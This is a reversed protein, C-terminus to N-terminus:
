FHISTVAVVPTAGPPDSVYADGWGDTDWTGSGGPLYGGGVLQGLLAAYDSSLPALPLNIANWATIATNVTRLEALTAARRIPTVDLSQSLDDATGQAGDQGLSLITLASVGSTTVVYDRNWADRALSATTSPQSALMAKLYPGTWGATGSANQELDAFTPPFIGTDEFHNGIAPALAALEARTDAIKGRTLSKGVVPLATGAIVALIAVVVILEILSFGRCRGDPATSDRTIRMSM